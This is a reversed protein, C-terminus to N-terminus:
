QNYFKSKQLKSSAITKHNQLACIVKQGRWFKQLFNLYFDVHDPMPIDETSSRTFINTFSNITFSQIKQLKSSTITKHNQLACIVKQGRWFKQLFNLYFDVHDPMPIDKTSNRTFINTFSNIIFSPNKCSLVRVQKTIKYLVFWRKVEEFKLFFNLYFDVHDPM